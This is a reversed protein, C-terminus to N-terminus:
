RLWDCIAVLTVLNLFRSSLNEYRMALAHKEKLRQFFNEVQHRRKYHGEHYAPLNTRNTAPPICAKLDLSELLRRFLDSDYAKDALITLRTQGAVLDPAVLQGASLILRLPRERTDVLAHIKTNAGGRSRGIAQNEPSGRSNM